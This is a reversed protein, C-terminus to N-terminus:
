AAALNKIIGCAGPLYCKLAGICTVGIPTSRAVRAFMEGYYEQQLEVEFNNPTESNPYPVSEGLALITGPATHVSTLIEMNQRTYPNWYANVASGALFENKGDPTVMIRTANTSSTGITLKKLSKAEQANLVLVTPSIRFHNWSYTLMTEIETCGGAGDSTPAAGANSKYYVGTASPGAGAGYTLQEMIGSLGTTKATQDATNSVNGSTKNVLITATNVTVTSYYFPTNTAYTSIYVNYAFAGPVDDWTVTFANNSGGPQVNIHAGGTLTANTENPAEATGHGAAGNLHGWLTLASVVVSYATGFVLSGGTVTAGTAVVTTPVGLANQNGGILDIDEGIMLSQLTALMGYAPIDEFKRGFVRSEDSYTNYMNLSKYIASMEATTFTIATNVAGEVVGPMIGASNIATIQKWHAAVGGTANLIRPIRRRMTDEIFYLKKSPAELPYGYLLNAALLGVAKQAAESTPLRPGPKLGQALELTEQTTLGLGNRMEM